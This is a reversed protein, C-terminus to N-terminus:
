RGANRQGRWVPLPESGAPFTVFALEPGLRVYAVRPFDEECRLVQLHHLEAWM